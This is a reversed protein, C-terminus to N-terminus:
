RLSLVSIRPKPALFEHTTVFSLPIYAYMDMINVGAAKVQIKMVNFLNM